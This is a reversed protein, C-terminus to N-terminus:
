SADSRGTSGPPGAGSVPLADAPMLESRTALWVRDRGRRKAEYLARDACRLLDGLTSADPGFGAVGISCTVRFELDGERHIQAGIASRVREAFVAAGEVTTQPMITVFEEGGFRGKVDSARMSAQIVRATQLLALDGALHGYTDNIDKFYDLDLLMVALPTGHRQARQIEQDLREMVFRRNSLGTQDDMRALRELEANACALEATRQAVLEDLHDRHRRLEEESRRMASVDTAVVIVGDVQHDRGRCPFKDTQIWHREGLPTELTEAIGFKPHGSAMVELDDLYFREADAPYWRGAPTGAMDAPTVGFAAAAARNVRVIRNHADKYMVLAPIADLITQLEERQQDAAALAEDRGTLEQITAIWAADGAVDGLHVRIWADFASGDPRVLRRGWAAADKSGDLLPAVACAFAAADDELGLAIADVHRWHQRDRGLRERALRNAHLVRLDGADLVVVEVGLPEFLSAWM